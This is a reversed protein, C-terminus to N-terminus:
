VETIKLPANIKDASVFWNNGIQANSSTPTPDPKKTVEVAISKEVEVTDGNKDTIDGILKVIYKGAVSTDMKFSKNITTESLDSTQSAYSDGTIKDGTVTLNWAAATFSVNITVETGEEVKTSTASISTSAANVKITGMAIMIALVVFFVIKRIKM